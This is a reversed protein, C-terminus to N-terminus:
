STRRSSWSPRTVSARKRSIRQRRPASRLAVDPGIMESFFGDLDSPSGAARRTLEDVIGAIRSVYADDVSNGVAEAEAELRDKDDQAAPPGLIVTINDITSV